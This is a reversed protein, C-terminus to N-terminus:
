RFYFSENTSAKTLYFFIFYQGTTLLSRGGMFKYKDMGTALDQMRYNIKTFKSTGVMSIEDIIITSVDEYQFKLSAEKSASLKVYNRNRNFCLASDITKADKLVYAANATPAMSIVSPKNLDRGSKVNISKIAETMVRVLYSKGTGAAGSIYLHYADKNNETQNRLEQEMIDDFISRQQSNLGMISERLASTDQVNTFEKVSRLQKEAQSKAWSEFDQMDEKSTTETFEKDKEDEEDDDDGAFAAQEDLKKQVDNIIDTLTKHAEFKAQVNRIGYFNTKALEVVNKEHVEVM